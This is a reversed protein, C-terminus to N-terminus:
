RRVVEVARIAAATRQEYSGSLVVYPLAQARLIRLFREDFWGRHDPSDRLGDDIWPLTSDSLLFLSYRSARAEALESLWAPCWGWYREHWLSTTILETDCILLRNAERALREESEVQGQAIVPMDELLCVVGKAALYDRAFEPVWVTNFHRALNQALTTKGTSEAGLIAVRRAYHARVGPPLYAWQDLPNARVQTASIPVQQRAPDVAVHRAGLRRALEDGYDESSFVLDIQPPTVARIENVWLQWISDSQFDVPHEATVQRITVAPCMESLWGVRLAGPIPDPSKTFIVVTLREVQAQAQQILYAHGLHPPMFKGIVLGEAARM